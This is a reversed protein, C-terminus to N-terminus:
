KNWEFGYQMPNKFLVFSHWFMSNFSQKREEKLPSLLTFQPIKCLLSFFIPNKESNHTHNHRKFRSKILLPSQVIIWTLVLCIPQFFMFIISSRSSRLNLLCITFYIFSFCLYFIFYTFLPGKPAM